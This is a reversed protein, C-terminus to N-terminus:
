VARRYLILHECGIRSMLRNRMTFLTYRLKLTQPWHSMGPLPFSYRVSRVPRIGLKKMEANLEDISLRNRRYAGRTGLLRGRLWYYPYLLRGIPYPNPTLELVLLGGPKLVASIKSFLSSVAPVHAIVGVCLVIDFRASEPVAEFSDNVLTVNGAYTPPLRRRVADIMASSIDVLTMRNSANLHPLSLSGDGCGIDLLNSDSVDGLFESVVMSRAIIRDRSCDLYQGDDFFRRVEDIM